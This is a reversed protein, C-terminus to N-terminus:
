PPDSHHQYPYETNTIFRGLKVSGGAKLNIKLGVNAWYMPSYWKHLYQITTVTTHIGFVCDGLTKIKRYLGRRDKESLIFM